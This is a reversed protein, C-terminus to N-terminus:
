APLRHLSYMGLFLGDMARIRDGWDNVPRDEM